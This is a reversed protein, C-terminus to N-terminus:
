LRKAVKSGFFIAGHDIVEAPDVHKMQDQEFGFVSIVYPSQKWPHNRTIESVALWLPDGLTGSLGGTLQRKGTHAHLISDSPPALYSIM